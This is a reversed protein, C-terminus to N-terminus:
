IKRPSVTYQLTEPTLVLEWHWLLQPVQILVGPWEAVHSWKKHSDVHIIKSHTLSSQLQMSNRTTHSPHIHCWCTRGVWAYEWGAQNNNARGKPKYKPAAAGPFVSRPSCVKWPRSAILQLRQEIELAKGLCTQAEILFHPKLLLSSTVISINIICKRREVSVHAAANGLFTLSCRLAAKLTDGEVQTEVEMQEQLYILPGM